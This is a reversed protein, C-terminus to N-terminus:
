RGIGDLERMVTTDIFQALTERTRPARKQLAAIWQEEETLIDLMQPPLAAPFAHHTWSRQVIAETQNVKRAIIPIAVQPRARVTDVGALVDRVFAVLQARKATDNLVDTTTYLSFWERYLAINEFVSADGGLAELAKQAEPEWMSIADADHRAVAGAMDDRGATVFTVDSEQLGASALMKFLYYHASTQPVTTIRKGRLDALTRIGASTRAIIRYRGEALTFLMRIRPNSTSALLMQTEANTAAQAEGDALNRVGGNIVRFRAGPQAEAVYIPGGEITATNMAVTFPASPAGRGQGSVAPLLVPLGVPIAALIAFIALRRPTLRTVRGAFHSM